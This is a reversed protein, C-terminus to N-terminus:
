EFDDDRFKLFEDHYMKGAEYSSRRHERHEARIETIENSLSQMKLKLQNIQETNQYTQGDKISQGYNNQVEEDENMDNEYQM